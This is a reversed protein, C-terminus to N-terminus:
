PKDTAPSKEKGRRLQELVRTQARLDQEQQVMKMVRLM